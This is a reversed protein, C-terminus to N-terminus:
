AQGAYVRQAAAVGAGSPVSAGADILARELASLGALVDADRIYGLHGIRVLSDKLQDQGGAITVGYVDRMRKVVAPSSIGQPVLASTCAFSPSRTYLKLGMAEVAASCARAHRAHRAHIAELGEARMMALVEVLALVVSIAPTFASEGTPQKKRERGLDFYYKPHDSAKYRAWARDNAAVFALGPPASLAKQSGTVMLDIELEDMPLPHVGVATIGDVCFLAHGHARVVKALQAMPHFVGTSTESASITVMACDPHAALLSAVVQPDAPEGWPVDYDIVNMGYARGVEAWREGFKGGGICLITDQRRTFNIMAAEFAGTGSCTLALVQHSTGFLWQLGESMQRFAAEFAPTRHHILARAMALRAAEPVQTPGPALLIDDSM